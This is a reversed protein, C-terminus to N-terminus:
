KIHINPIILVFTRLQYWFLLRIKNIKLLYFMLFKIFYNFILKYNIYNCGNRTTIFIYLLFFLKLAM